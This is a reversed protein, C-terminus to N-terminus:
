QRYRRRSKDDRENTYLEYIGLKNSDILAIDESGKLKGERRLKKIEKQLPSNKKILLSYESVCFYLIEKLIPKIHKM